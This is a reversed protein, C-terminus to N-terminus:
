YKLTPTECNVLYNQTRDNTIATDETTFQVAATTTNGM